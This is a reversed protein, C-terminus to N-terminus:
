RALKIIMNNLKLANIYSLDKAMKAVMKIGIHAFPDEPNFIHELTRPDFRECNDRMRIIIEESKLIIRIDIFHEKGDHFGKDAIEAAMEEICLGAYLAQEEEVGHERCFTIADKSLGLVEDMTTITIGIEDETESSFDKPLFMYDEMTVAIRRRRICTFVFLLVTALLKGTFVSLWVGNIGMFPCLVLMSLAPGAFNQTVTMVNSLVMRHISHYYNIMVQNVTYPILSIGWWLIGKTVDTYEPAATDTYMMAMLGSGLAILLALGASVFLALKLASRLMGKLARRDEEGALVSDVTLAASGFAKAPIGLMGSMNDVIANASIGISGGVKLSMTNFTINRLMTALRNYVAPFGSRLILGTEKREIGRFSFRFSCEKKRFHLLLVFLSVYESVSTALGIWFMSGHLVFVTFLDGGINVITAITVARVARKKENDLQMVPLLLETGVAAPLGFALGRVYNAAETHIEVAEPSSGFLTATMGPFLIVPILFLFSLVAGIICSLSFLANARDIRGCGIAKSCQNLSGTAIVGSLLEVLKNYASGIALAAIAVSTLCKSVIVGDVISGVTTTLMSILFIVLSGRFSKSVIM